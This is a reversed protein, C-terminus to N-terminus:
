PVLLQGSLSDEGESANVDFLNDAYEESLYFELRVMTHVERVDRRKNKGSCGLYPKKM